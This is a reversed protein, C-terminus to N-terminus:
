NNLQSYEQDLLEVEGKSTLSRQDTNPSYSGSALYQKTNITLSNHQCLVAMAEHADRDFYYTEAKITRQESASTKRNLGTSIEQYQSEEGGYSEESRLVMLRFKNSYTPLDVYRFNFINKYHSYTIHSSYDEIDTNRLWFYNSTYKTTGTSIDIIAWYYYGDPYTSTVLTIDNSYIHIGAGVTLSNINSDSYMRIGQSNYLALRLNSFTLGTLPSDSNIYFRFKDGHTLIPFSRRDGDTPYPNPIEYAAGTQQSYVVVDDIILSSNATTNELKLLNDGVLLAATVDITVFERSTIVTESLVTTDSSIKLTTTAGATKAKLTVRYNGAAGFVSAYSAFLGATAGRNLRMARSANTGDNVTVVSGATNITETAYEGLEQQVNSIFITSGIPGTFNAVRTAALSDVFWLLPDNSGTVNSVYTLSCVYKDGKPVITASVGAGLSCTGNNLDFNAFANGVSQGTSLLLQLFNTSGKKGIFHFTYTSGSVFGGASNQSIFVSTATDTSTLVGASNTLNNKIWAANDYDNNHLVRNTRTAAVIAGDGPETKTWNTFNNGSGLEFEGNAILNQDAFWRCFNFRNIPAQNKYYQPM